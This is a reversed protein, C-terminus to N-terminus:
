LKKIKNLPNEKYILEIILGIKYLKVASFYRFANLSVKLNNKLRKFRIKEHLKVDTYSLSSM